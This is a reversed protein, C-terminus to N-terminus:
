VNISRWRRQGQSRDKTRVVTCLQAACGDLFRAWGDLQGRVQRQATSDDSWQGRHWRIKQASPGPRCAQHRVAAIPSGVWRSTRGACPIALWPVLGPGAWCLKCRGNQKHPVEVTGRPTAPPCTVSQEDPQSAESHAAHPTECAWSDPLHGRTRPFTYSRSGVLGKKQEM